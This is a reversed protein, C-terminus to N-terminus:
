TEHARLHTYSVAVYETIPLCKKSAVQDSMTGLACYLDVPEGGIQKMDITTAYNNADVADLHLRVPSDIEELHANVADEVAVVSDPSPVIVLCPYSITIWVPDKKPAETAPAETAPANNNSGSTAAPATTAPAPSKSGCGAFLTLMLALTLALAIIKKM